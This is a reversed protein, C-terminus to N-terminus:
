VAIAAPGEPQAPTGADAAGFRDCWRALMWVTWLAQGHRARGARHDDFLAGAHRADILSRVAPILGRRTAFVVHVIGPVVKFEPLVVLLSGDALDKKVLSKPM